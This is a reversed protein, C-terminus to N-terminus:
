QTIPKFSRASLTYRPFSNYKVDQHMIQRQKYLLFIELSRVSRGNTELFRPVLSEALEEFRTVIPNFADLDVVTLFFRYQLGVRWPDDCQVGTYFNCGAILRMDKGYTNIGSKARKQTM